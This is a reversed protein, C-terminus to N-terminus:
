SFSSSTTRVYRRQRAMSTLRQHSWCIIYGRMSELALLHWFPHFKANLLAQLGPQSRADVTGDKVHRPRTSPWGDCVEHNKHRMTRAVKTTLSSVHLLCNSEMQNRYCRYQAHVSIWLRLLDLGRRYWIIRSAFMNSHSMLHLPREVTDTGSKTSSTAGATFTVLFCLQGRGQGQGPSPSTLVTVYKVM